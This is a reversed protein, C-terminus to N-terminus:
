ERADEVQNSAKQQEQKKRFKDAKGIAKMLILPAFQPEDKNEECDLCFSMLITDVGMDYVQFFLDGVFYGIVFCLAILLLPYELGTNSNKVPDYMDLRTMGFAAAAAGGAVILRGLFLIVTTVFNVVAFRLVNKLIIQLAHIASWCYNRGSIAVIIYANKNLFKMFQELMWLCYKCICLCAKGGCTDGSKVVRRIRKEAFTVLFRIFKIIAIVLSGFAVTGLHKWVVINLAYLIPSGTMASRDGRKFYFMAFVIALVVYGVGLLFENTWLLGFFHYAGAYWLTNNWKWEYRCTTSDACATELRNPNTDGEPIYQSFYKTTLTPMTLSTQGFTTKFAEVDRTAQYNWKDGTEQMAGSTYLFLLVYIWYCLFAVEFILPFIPWVLLTPVAAIGTVAVKLVAVAIRIRPILVLTILLLLATIGVSVWMIIEWSLYSQNVNLGSIANTAWASQIKNAKLASFLTFAIFVLNVGIVISWVFVGVMYRIIVLWVLSLVIAAGVAVALILVGRGIDAVAKQWVDSPLFGNASDFSYSTGITAKVVDKNNQESVNPICRNAIDLQSMINPYCPGQSIVQSANKYNTVLDAYYDSRWQQAEAGWYSANSVMGVAAWDVVRSYSCTFQDASCTPLIGSQMKCVKNNATTPCEAICVRRKSALSALDTFDLQDLYYSKKYNTFDPYIVPYSLGSTQPRALRAPAGNVWNNYGCLFGYGDLDYILRELGGQTFALTAVTVMGFWFGAYLLLCLIDTCGREGMKKIPEEESPSHGMGKKNGCCGM